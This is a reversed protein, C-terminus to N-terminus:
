GNGGSIRRRELLEKEEGSFKEDLDKIEQFIQKRLEEPAESM